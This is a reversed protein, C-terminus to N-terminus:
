KVNQTNVVQDQICKLDGWQVRDLGRKSLDGRWSHKTLNNKREKIEHELSKYLNPTKMNTELSKLIKM